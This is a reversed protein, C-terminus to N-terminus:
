VYDNIFKSSASLTIYSARVQDKMHIFIIQVCCRQVHNM